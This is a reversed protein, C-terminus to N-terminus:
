AKLETEENVPFVPSLLLSHFSGWLSTMLLDLSHSISYFLHGQKRLLFSAPFLLSLHLAFRYILLSKNLSMDIIAIYM